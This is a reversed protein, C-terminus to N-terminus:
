TNENRKTFALYLAGFILTTALYQIVIQTYNIRNSEIAIEKVNRFSYWVPAYFNNIKVAHPVHQTSIINSEILQPVYISQALILLIYIGVVVKKM